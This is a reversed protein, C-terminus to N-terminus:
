SRARHRISPRAPAVGLELFEAVSVAGAGGAAAAAGALVLLLLRRARASAKPGRM